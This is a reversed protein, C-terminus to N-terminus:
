TTAEPNVLKPCHEELKKWTEEAQFEADEVPPSEVIETQWNRRTGDYYMNVAYAGLFSAVYRDIFEQKRSM